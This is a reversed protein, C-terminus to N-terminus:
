RRLLGVCSGCDDVTDCARNLYLFQLRRVVPFNITPLGKMAFTVLNGLFESLQIFALKLPVFQSGM